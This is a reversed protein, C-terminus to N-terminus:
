DRRLDSSLNYVYAGHDRIEVVWVDGRETLKKMIVNIMNRKSNQMRGLPGFLVPIMDSVTLPGYARLIDLIREELTPPLPEVRM